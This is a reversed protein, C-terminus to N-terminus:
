AAEGLGEPREAAPAGGTLEQVRALVERASFPKGMLHRINTLALQGEDLIYGRATLLIAPVNTCGPDARLALCLEIGSMLPMQLDTVVADPPTAQALELAEQGDAAELVEYGAARLKTAVVSRIHHEDDAVLILPARTSYGSM